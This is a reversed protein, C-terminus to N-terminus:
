EEQRKTKGQAAVEASSPPFVRFRILDDLSMDAAGWINVMGQPQIDLGPDLTRALRFGITESSSHPSRGRRFASRANNPSSGVDGGRCVRKAGRPEENWAVGTAPAGTYDAHWDDEVWEHVLGHVDCMGWPNASRRGVLPLPFRGWYDTPYEAGFNSDVWDSHTPAEDGPGSWFRSTSGARAAFEWEAETPLRFGNTEPVLNFEATLQSQSVYFGNEEALNQPLQYAPELGARESLTNCFAAADCWSLFSM